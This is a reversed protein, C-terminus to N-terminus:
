LHHPGMKGKTGDIKEEIARRFEDIATPEIELAAAIKHMTAFHPVQRGSEAFQITNLAVGAKKALDRMTLLKRLRAERLTVM